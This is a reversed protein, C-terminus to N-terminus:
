GRIPHYARNGAAWQHGRNASIGTIVVGITIFVGLVWSITNLAYALGAIIHTQHAVPNRHVTAISM